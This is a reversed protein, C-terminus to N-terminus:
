ENEYSITGDPRSVATVFGETWHDKNLPCKDIKFGDPFRRFGPQVRLREIAARADDDTRYAGILKADDEGGEFEHLHWLLYVEDMLHEGGATSSTLTM